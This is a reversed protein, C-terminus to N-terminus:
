AVLCFDDLGFGGIDSWSLFTVPNAWKSIDCERGASLRLTPPKGPTCRVEPHFRNFPNNDVRFSDPSRGIFTQGGVLVVRLRTHRFVRKRLVSVRKRMTSTDQADHKDASEQREGLLRRSKSLSPHVAKRIGSLNTVCM